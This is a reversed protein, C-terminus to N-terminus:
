ATPSYYSPANGAGSTSGGNAFYDSQDPFGSRLNPLRNYRVNDIRAALYPTLLKLRPETYAALQVCLNTPPKKVLLFRGNDTTQFTGDPAFKAADQPVGIANYDIYELFTVPQGGLVTLPVFYISSQMVGGGVGDETIADDIIVPVDMGFMKLHQGTRNQLDGRMEDRMRIQDGADVVVRASDSGFGCGDTLYSCPWIRTAEYFASQSMVIVWRVPALNVRAALDMLVFYTELMVSVFASSSNRINQQAFSVVTSDAAACAVGTVADRYGTNILENLGYFEKYGGGASNNAPNGTYLQRSFDRAWAVMWAWIVKGTNTNAMDGATVGPVSPAFPGRSPSNFPDGFVQFDRHEGRSTLRTGERINYVPTQRAFLGLAYSHMCLKVLGTTPPDDCVGNAEDGTTATVGTIIGDLPDTVETGRVPLVYQLGSFPASIVASYLPRELAPNSFLGGPGHGYNGGPTSSVAKLSLGSLRESNMRHWLRDAVKEALANDSQYV